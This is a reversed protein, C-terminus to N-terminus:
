AAAAPMAARMPETMEKGEIKRILARFDDVLIALDAYLPQQEAPLDAYTSDLRDAFTVQLNLILEQLPVTLHLADSGYVADIVISAGQLEAILGEIPVDRAPADPQIKRIGTHTLLSHLQRTSMVAEKEASRHIVIREPTEFHKKKVIQTAIALLGIVVLVSAHQIRIMSSTVM